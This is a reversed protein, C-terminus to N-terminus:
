CFAGKAAIERTHHDGIEPRQAFVDGEPRKKHALRRRCFDQELSSSPLSARRDLPHHVGLEPQRQCSGNRPGASLVAHGPPTSYFRTRGLAAPPLVSADGGAYTEQLSITSDSDTDILAFMMRFMVPPPGMMSHGMMGMPHPQTQQQDPQPTMRDQAIAGSAGYVLVLASMTLVLRTYM